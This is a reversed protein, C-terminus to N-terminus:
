GPARRRTESPREGFKARYSAAFRSLHLFGYRYAIETVSETAGAAGLLDRNAADLRCDRLYRIPTRGVHRSFARQLARASVEVEAAIDSLSIADTLHAHIFEIARDVVRRGANPDLAVDERTRDLALAFLGALLSEMRAVLADQEVWEAGTELDTWVSRLHRFLSAGAPTALSLDSPLAQKSLGDRLGALQNKILEQDFNAVLLEVPRPSSFDFPDDDQLVHATGFSYGTSLGGHRISCHGRLPVTLGTYGRDRPSLVRAGGIRVHFIGM